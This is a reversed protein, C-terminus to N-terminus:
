KPNILYMVDRVISIIFVALVIYNAVIMTVGFWSPEEIYLLTGITLLILFPYKIWRM